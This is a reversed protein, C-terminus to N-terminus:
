RSEVASTAAQSTRSVHHKTKARLLSVEGNGNLDCNKIDLSLQIERSMKKKKRKIQKEIRNTMIEAFLWARPKLM